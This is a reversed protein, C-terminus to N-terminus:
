KSYARPMALTSMYRDRLADQRSKIEQEQGDIWMKEVRTSLEFPDASWLVLDAKKGVAIRGANYHFADAINATVAALAQEKTLHEWVHESLIADISDKKFYRDWHKRNLLNLYQYDTPTWKREHVGASGVVIRLPTKQAARKLSYPKILVKYLHYAGRVLDRLIPVKNILSKMKREDKGAINIAEM